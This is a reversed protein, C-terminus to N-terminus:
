QKGGSLAKCSRSCIPWPKPSISEEFGVPMLSLGSNSMQDIDQRLVVEPQTGPRKITVSSATEDAVLGSISSRRGVAGYVVNVAARSRPKPRTYEVAAQRPGLACQKWIRALKPGWGTRATAPPVASAIRARKPSGRRCETHRAYRKVVNRRAEEARGLVQGALEAIPANQQRAVSDQPGAGAPRAPIAKQREDACFAITREPRALVRRRLAEEQVAPSTKRLPRDARRRDRTGQVIGACAGGGVTGSATALARDAPAVQGCLKPISWLGPM